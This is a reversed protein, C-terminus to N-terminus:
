QKWATDYWRMTTFPRDGASENLDVVAAVTRRVNSLSGDQQRIQATARLTYQTRGGVRLRSAGNLNSIGLQQLDAETRFPQLMRRRVIAMVAHPPLGIAALVAPQAWNVDVARISGFVSVCDRLGGRWVLPAHEMLMEQTMHQQREAMMMKDEADMESMAVEMSAMAAMGMMGSAPIYTGYFLEPTMGHVLLLEEVNELSSQRAPFSPNRAVYLADLGSFGGQAPKRWHDVAISLQQAEVPNMGLNVLLLLLEEVDVRNINLKSAEPIVDVIVEGSPFSFALSRMGIQFYQPGPGGVHQNAGWQVWLAAREIGARALFYAKVGESHITTREVESRVTAAISLAIASLAAVVWLVALLAGGRRSRAGSATNPRM